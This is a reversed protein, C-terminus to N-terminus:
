ARLRNHQRRFRAGQEGTTVVDRGTVYDGDGAGRQAVADDAVKFAFGVADACVLYKIVHQVRNRRRSVSAPLAFVLRRASSTIRKFYDFYDILWCCSLRSSGAKRLFSSRNRMGARRAKGPVIRPSRREVRRPEDTSNASKRLYSAPSSKRWTSQFM